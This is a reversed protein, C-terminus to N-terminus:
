EVNTSGFPHTPSAPAPRTSGSLTSALYSRAAPHPGGRAAGSRRAVAPGRPARSRPLAIARRVQDDRKQLMVEELPSEGRDSIQLATHRVAQDTDELLLGAIPMIALKQNELRNLAVNKGTPLPWASLRRKSEYGELARFARAFTEQTASDAM